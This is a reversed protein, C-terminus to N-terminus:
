ECRIFVFLNFDDSIINKKEENRNNKHRDSIFIVRQKSKSKITKKM